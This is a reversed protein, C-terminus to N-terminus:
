KTLCLAARQVTARLPSSTKYVPSDQDKVTTAPVGELSCPNQSFPDLKVTMELDQGGAQHHSSHVAQHYSDDKSSDLSHVIAQMGHKVLALNHLFAVRGHPLLFFFSGLPLATKGPSYPM